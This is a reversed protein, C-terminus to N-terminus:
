LLERRIGPVPSHRVDVVDVGPREPRDPRHDQHDPQGGDDDGQRREEAPLVRVELRPDVDLLLADHTMM